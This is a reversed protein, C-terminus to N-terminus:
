EVDIILRMLPHIACRVAFRGQKDFKLEVTKGMPQEGSDFSMRPSDVFIHHTVKDDNKIHVVSGRKLKLERPWFERDHQSVIIAEAALVLTLTLASVLLTALSINASRRLRYIVDGNNQFLRQLLTQRCFRREELDSGTSGTIRPHFQTFIRLPGYSDVPIRMNKRSYVWRTAVLSPMEPDNGTDGIGPGPLVPPAATRVAHLPSTM